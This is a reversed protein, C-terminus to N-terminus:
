DLENREHLALLADAIQPDFRTGKGELIHEVAEAPTWADKYIRPHVLADYVDAVHVIRAEIPIAEALLGDPYGSGDFNEHHWRAIRRALVFYRGEALIREGALTHDQMRRREDQDLPGPKGLIADPVHLKGVDHLMAARAIEDAESETSGLELCLKRTIREIRRVHEGTDYDKAESAVALMYLADRIARQLDATRSAVREELMRNIDRLQSAEEVAERHQAERIEQDQKIRSLDTLTIARKGNMSRGVSAIVPVSGATTNLMTESEHASADSLDVDIAVLDILRRGVPEPFGGILERLRDNAAVVEGRADVVLAAAHLSEAFRRDSSKRGRSISRREAM